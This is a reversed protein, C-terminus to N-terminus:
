ATEEFNGSMIWADTGVKKIAVTGYQDTIEFTTTSAEGNLTAGSSTGITVVGALYKVIAIETNTPFEVSSNLPITIKVANTAHGALIVKGADTLALTYNADQTESEPKEVATLRSHVARGWQTFKNETTQTWKAYLTTDATVTDNDFDWLNTLAEEKYWGAFTYNTRTPATPESITSGDEVDTIDSVASGGNSDFSVTWTSAGATTTFTINADVYVEGDYAAYVGVVYQTSASLSTVDVDYWDGMSVTDTDINGGGSALKVYVYPGEINPGSPAYVSLVASDDDYSVLYIEGVQVAGDSDYAEYTVPETMTSGVTVTEGAFMQINFPYKKM